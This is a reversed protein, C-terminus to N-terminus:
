QEDKKKVEKVAFKSAKDYLMSINKKKEGKIMDRLVGVCLFTSTSAMMGAKYFISKIRKNHTKMQSELESKVVQSIMDLQEQNFESTTGMVLLERCAQAKYKVNNEQMYRKLLKEEEQDLVVKYDMM